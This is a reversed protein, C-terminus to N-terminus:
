IPEDIGAQKLIALATYRSRTGRDITVKDKGNPGVWVEHDGKGRRWLTWGHKRLIRTLAKGYGDVM